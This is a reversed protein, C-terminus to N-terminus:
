NEDIDGFKLKIVKGQIVTMKSLVIQMRNLIDSHMAEVEPDLRDDEVNNEDIEGSFELNLGHGKDESEYSFHVYDTAAAIILRLQEEKINKFSKQVYGLVDGIETFCEKIRANNARYLVRKETPSIKLMTTNHDTMMNLSMRGIAVSRFVSKYPPVFKDIANILGESANQIFDMYELHTYPTKSWFIKARNIALPLNNECLLNRTKIINQYISTLKDKQPGKYKTLVWKAFSYNIKYPYLYFAKNEKFAMSIKSSFVDQRERFYVRASLINGKDEMIYQIFQSYVIRGEPDQQLTLRFEDEYGFLAELLDKQDKNEGDKNDALTDNMSKIFLKFIANDNNKEM